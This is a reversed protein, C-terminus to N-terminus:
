TVSVATVIAAIRVAEGQFLSKKQLGSAALHQDGPVAIPWTSYSFSQMRFVIDRLM